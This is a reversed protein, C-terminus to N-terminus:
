KKISNVLKLIVGGDTIEIKSKKFEVFYKVGDTTYLKDEYEKPFLPYKTRIDNVSMQIAEPTSIKHYINKKKREVSSEKVTNIPTNLEPQKFTYDMKPEPQKFTYDMKPEPQKYIPQEIRTETRYSTLKNFDNIFNKQENSLKNIGDVTKETTSLILDYKEKMNLIIDDIGNLKIDQKTVKDLIITLDEKLKEFDINSNNQVTKVEQFDSKKYSNNNLPINKFLEDLDMKNKNKM